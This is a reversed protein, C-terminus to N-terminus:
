TGSFAHRYGALIRSAKERFAEDALQEISSLDLPTVFYFCEGWEEGRERYHEVPPDPWDLGAAEFGLAVFEQITFGADAIMREFDGSRWPDDTMVGVRVQPLFPRVTMEYWLHNNVKWRTALLSEDERDHHEVSRLGDNVASEIWARFARIIQRTQEDLPM